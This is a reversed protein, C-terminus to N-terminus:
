LSTLNLLNFALFHKLDDAHIYDFGSVLAKKNMFVPDRLLAETTKSVVNYKILVHLPTSKNFNM